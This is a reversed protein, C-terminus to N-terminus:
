KEGRSQTLGAILGRGLSIKETAGTAVGIQKFIAAGQGRRTAILASYELAQERLVIDPVQGVFQWVKDLPDQAALRIAATLVLSERVDTKVDNRQLVSIAERSRFLM